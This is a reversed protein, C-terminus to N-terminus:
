KFLKQFHWSSLAIKMWNIGAWTGAIEKELASKLIVM